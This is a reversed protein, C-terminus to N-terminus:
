LVLAPLPAVRQNQKMRAARLVPDVEYYYLLEEGAAIKRRTVFYLRGNDTWNRELNAAAESNSSNILGGWRRWSRPELVEERIPLADIFANKAFVKVSHTSLRPEEAVRVGDYETVSMGKKIPYAAFVGLGGYPSPRLEIDGDEIWEPEDWFVTSM